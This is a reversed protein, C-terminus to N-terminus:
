SVKHIEVYDWNYDFTCPLIYSFTTIKTYGKHKLENITKEILGTEVEIINPVDKLFGNGYEDM